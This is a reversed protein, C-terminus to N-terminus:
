TSIKGMRVIWLYVEYRLRTSRTCETIFYAKRNKNPKRDAAPVHMAIHTGDLAGEYSNFYPSYKRNQLIIESPPDLLQPQHVYDVHLILMASVEQFYRSVTSGFHHFHKQVERDSGGPGLIDIFMAIKESLRYVNM